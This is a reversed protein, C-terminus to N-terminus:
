IGIIPKGGRLEELTLGYNLYRELYIATMDPHASNDFWEQSRLRRGPPMGKTPAKTTGTARLRPSRGRVARGRGDAMKRGAM